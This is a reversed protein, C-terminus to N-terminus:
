GEGIGLLPLNLKPEGSVPNGNEDYVQVPMARFNFVQVPVPVYAARRERLEVLSQLATHLLIIPLWVMVMLAAGQWGQAASMACAILGVGYLALHAGYFLRLRSIQEIRQIM